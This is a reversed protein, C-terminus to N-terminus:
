LYFAFLVLILFLSPIDSCSNFSMAEFLQTVIAGVFFIQNLSYYYENSM